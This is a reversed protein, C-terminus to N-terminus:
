SETPTNNTLISLKFIKLESKMKETNKIKKFNTLESLKSTTLMLQRMTKPSINFYTYANPVLYVANDDSTPSMKKFELDFAGNKDFINYGLGFFCYAIEDKTLNFGFNQIFVKDLTRTIYELENGSYKRENNTQPLFEIIFKKLIQKKNNNM